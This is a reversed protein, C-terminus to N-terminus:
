THRCASSPADTCVFRHFCKLMCMTLPESQVACHMCASLAQAPCQLRAGAGAQVVRDRESSVTPKHDTTLDIAKGRRCLVARSDGAHAMAIHRGWVLATLATCGAARAGPTFGSFLQEDAALYASRQVTCGLM